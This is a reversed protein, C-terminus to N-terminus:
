FNVSCFLTLGLFKGDWATPKLSVYSYLFELWFFDGFDSKIVNSNKRVASYSLLPHDDMKQESFTNLEACILISVRMLDPSKARWHSQDVPCRHLTPPVELLVKSCRSHCHWTTMCLLECSWIVCCLSVGVQLEEHRYYTFIINIPSFTVIIKQLWNM